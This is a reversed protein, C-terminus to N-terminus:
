NLVNTLKLKEGLLNSQINAYYFKNHKNTHYIQKHLHAIKYRM